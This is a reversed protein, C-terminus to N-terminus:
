GRLRALLVPYFLPECTVDNQLECQRRGNDVSLLNGFVDLGFDLLVNSVKNGGAVLWRLQDGNQDAFIGGALDVHAVFFTSAFAGADGALQGAHRGIGRGLLEQIQDVFEVVVAGDAPDQDLQWERGCDVRDFNEVRDAREFVDVSEM